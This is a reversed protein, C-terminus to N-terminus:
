DIRPAEALDYQLTLLSHPPTDLQLVIVFGGDRAGMGRVRADHLYYKEVVLRLGAPLKDKMAELSVNYRECAEEWRAEAESWTAGDDAGYAALLQPTFYKM